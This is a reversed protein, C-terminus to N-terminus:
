FEWRLGIEPILPLWGDEARELTVVGQEDTEFDFDVCCPNFRDQLNSLEAFIRLRSDQFNFDRSIRLDSRLYSGLRAGNRPGFRAVTENQGGGADLSHLTVDTTPWGSHFNVAASVTWDGREYNFGLGAAHRQDWYRPVDRGDIRDSAKSISYRAWSTLAKGSRYSFLLDLGRAVAREPLVAVRDPELEALLELNNLQNEFRPRLANMRKHFLEARLALHESFRYDMGLILHDARQAEQFRDIGDEVQLEHIGDAQAYRGFSARLDLRDNARYLVSARPSWQSDNGAVYTQQDFRLGAELYWRPSLQRRQSFYAALSNGDPAADIAIARQAPVGEYAAYFGRYEAEGRYAYRAENRRWDLGWQSLVTPSSRWQWDQNMGFVEVDRVDSVSGIIKEPDNILGTRTNAIDGYFATFQSSLGGGWDHDLRAWVHTNRTRSRAQNQDDPENEAVILVRDNAVMSSLSLTSAPALDISARLYIDNFEPEGLNSNKLVYGLNSRRASLLWGARDDWLRGHSLVSTNLASIGIATRKGPEPELPQLDVVGSMRGGFRAPYGGTYIQLGAIAYQDFTSFANQYDRIHFPDLLEIGDFLIAVEDRDGGRVFSQASFDSSAVGPLQHAARLPDDRHGPMAEIKQQSFYTGAFGAVNELDYRSATVTLTEFASSLAALEVRTAIRGGAPVEIRITQPSYGPASATLTRPGAALNAFQFAGNSLDRGTGSAGRVTVEAGALPRGATSERILVLLSGFEASQASPEAIVVYYVGDAEHLALGHVALLEELAALSSLDPQAVRVKLDEALLSDSYIIRWGQARYHEVVEVVSVEDAVLESRDDDADVSSVVLSLAVLLAQMLRGGHLSQRSIKHEPASM